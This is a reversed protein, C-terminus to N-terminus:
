SLLQLNVVKPLEVRLIIDTPQEHETPLNANDDWFKTFNLHNRYVVEFKPEVEGSSNPCEKNDAVPTMTASRSEAVPRSKKESKPKKTVPDPVRVGARLQPHSAPSKYPGKPITLMKPEKNPGKYTLKPLSFDRSLQVARQTQVADVATEVLFNKFRKDMRAMHHTETAVVFDHVECAAGRKDVDTQAPGLSYPIEWATGSKDKAETGKPKAIKDSYCINIFVKAGTKENKTKACFATSPILLEKDEPFGPVKEGRNEAERLADEMEKRNNPDSMEKAYDAFLEMFKPDKMMHTMNKVEEPTMNIKDFAEATAM